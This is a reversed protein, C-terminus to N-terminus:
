PPGGLGPRDPPSPNTPMRSRTASCPPVTSAPGRSPPPYRTRARMGIGADTMASSEAVPATGSASQASAPAASASAPRHCRSRDPDQERVVMAQHAGAEPDDELDLVIDLDDPLCGVAALRDLQGRAM